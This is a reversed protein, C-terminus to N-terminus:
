KEDVAYVTKIWAPPAKTRTTLCAIVKKVGKPRTSPWPTYGDTLVIIIDPCPKLGAAQVIGRGMDTGGGGAFKRKKKVSSIKQGKTSQTDCQLLTVHGVSKLIGYIEATCREKDKHTMSGSTDEVVAITPIPKSQGPLKFPPCDRRCRKAWTYDGQGKVVGIAARVAARLQKRWDVKPPSLIIDAMEVLNGPVSGPFRGFQDKINQAIGRVAVIQQAISVSDAGDTSDQGDSPDDSEEDPGPLECKLKHGGAGSGCGCSSQPQGKSQNQNDVLNVYQESTLKQPLGFTAPFVAGKPMNYVIASAGTQRRYSEGAAAFELLNSNIALDGAINALTKDEVYSLRSHHELILHQMEHGAIVLALDQVSTEEIFKPHAYLRWWKDVAITPTGNFECDESIVPVLRCVASYIFPWSNRVSLRAASIKSKCNQEVEPDIM